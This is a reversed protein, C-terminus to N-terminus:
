QTTPVATAGAISSLATPNAAGTSLSPDSPASGGTLPAFHVPQDSHTPPSLQQAIIKALGMGGGAALKQSLTDTLFYSYVSSQTGGDDGEAGGAGDQDGGGMMAGVRQSLFQRLLLAEFQSAVAQRQATPSMGPRMAASLSPDNLGFPVSVSPNIPSINV